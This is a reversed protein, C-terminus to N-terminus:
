EKPTMEYKISSGLGGVKSEISFKLKLNAMPFDFFELFIQIQM